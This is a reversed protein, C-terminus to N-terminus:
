SAYNMGRRRRTRHLQRARRKEAMRGDIANAAEWEVREACDNAKCEDPAAAATDESLAAM